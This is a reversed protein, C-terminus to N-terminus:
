AAFGQGEGSISFGTLEGSDVRAMTRDDVEMGIFLGSIATEIGNAKAIDQTLPLMFLVTGVEDGKHMVKATRDSKAFEIAAELMVEDSVHHDQTDFYDEGDITSVISPGFLLNHRKEAKLLQAQFEIAKM